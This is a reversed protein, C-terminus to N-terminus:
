KSIPTGYRGDRVARGLYDPRRVEEHKRYLAGRGRTGTQPPDGKSRRPNRPNPRRSTTRWNRSDTAWLNAREHLQKTSQKLKAATLVLDYFDPDRFHELKSFDGAQAARCAENYMQKLSADTRERVAKNTSFGEDKNLVEKYARDVHPATENIKSQTQARMYQVANRELQQYSGALPGVTQMIRQNVLEDVYGNPNQVFRSLQEDTLQQQNQQPPAQQYGQQPYNYGQPPGNWQPTPSATQQYGTNQSSQDEDIWSPSFEEQPPAQPEGTPAAETSQVDETSPTAQEDIGSDPMTELDDM